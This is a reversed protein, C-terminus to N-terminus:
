FHFSENRMEEKNPLIDIVESIEAHLIKNLKSDKKAKVILNMKALMIDSPGIAPILGSQYRELWSKDMMVADFRQNM